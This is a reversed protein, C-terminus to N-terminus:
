APPNGDADSPEPSAPPMASPGAAAAAPLAQLLAAFFGAEPEFDLTAVWVRAGLARAPDLKVADKETLVVDGATSPWPLAAYDHHDPLPLEDIELGAERLGAFFRGPAAVGAVALVRRGALRSWAAPDAAHGARWDALTRLGSLRRRSRWGELPTTPEPANYLVLRAPAAPAPLREGVQLPERLPGAPLLRGNGIGREDFLLVEVDRGLALHQLGDDAVIVDVEPHAQLLAHAAGVRDADVLVPVGTRRRLLLPEDGARAPDTDPEVAVRGSGRRGYGRSVIGPHRGAARLAEVIAIVAPTKGAGGVIRNGVVVVPVPLRHTALWGDAHLRGRLGVAAGYLWALPRLWRSAGERTRWM